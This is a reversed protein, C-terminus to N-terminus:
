SCLSFLFLRAVSYIARRKKHRLYYKIMKIAYLNLIQCQLEWGCVRCMVVLYVSPLKLIFFNTRAANSAVKAAPAEAASLILKPTEAV